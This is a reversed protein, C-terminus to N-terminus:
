GENNIRELMKTTSRGAFLPVIEIRGGYSEVVSSEPLSEQTLEYDGGKVHVDPKLRRITECPTDEEFVTVYDVPALSAM